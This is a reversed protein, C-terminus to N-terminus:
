AVGSFETNVYVSFSPIILAFFFTFRIFHGRQPLKRISIFRASLTSTHVLSSATRRKPSSCPPHFAIRTSQLLQNVYVHLFHPQQQLS